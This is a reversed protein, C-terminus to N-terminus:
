IYKGLVECHHKSGFVWYIENATSEYLLQRSIMTLKIDYSDKHECSKKKKENQNRYLFFVPNMNTKMLVEM